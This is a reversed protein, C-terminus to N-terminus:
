TKRGYKCSKLIPCLSCKPNTKLCYERGIIWAAADFDAPSLLRLREIATLSDRIRNSASIGTRFLVRRVLEDPKVSMKHRNKIGGAVGYNRVLIFQAMKSLADGIGDFEKFRSYILEVDEGKVNWINRPDGNYDHLMKISASHLWRPFKNFCFVSAYSNGDYGKQCIEKITRPPTKAIGEWFNSANTFHNKVLHKGGNWAREAVQGQDLMVGIFFANASDETFRKRKDSWKVWDYENKDKLKAYYNLIQAAAKKM